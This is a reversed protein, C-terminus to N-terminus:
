FQRPARGEFHRVCRYMVFPTHTEEDFGFERYEVRWREQDSGPVLKLVITDNLDPVWGISWFPNVISHGELDRLLIRIPSAPWSPTEPTM